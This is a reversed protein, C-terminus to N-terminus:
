ALKTFPDFWDYENPNIKWSSNLSMYGLNQCGNIFLVDLSKLKLIHSHNKCEKTRLRISDSKDWDQNHTAHGRSWPTWM